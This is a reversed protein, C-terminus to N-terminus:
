ACHYLSKSGRGVYRVKGNSILANQGPVLGIVTSSFVLHDFISSNIESSFLLQESDVMTCADEIHKVQVPEPLSLLSQLCTLLSYTSSYSFLAAQIAHHLVSPSGAGNHVIAVRVLETSLQVICMISYNCNICMISASVSYNIASLAVLKGQSTKLDVVIWVSLEKITFEGSYICLM